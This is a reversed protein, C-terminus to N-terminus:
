VMRAVLRSLAVYCTVWQKLAVRQMYQLLADLAMLADSILEVQDQPCHLRLEVM